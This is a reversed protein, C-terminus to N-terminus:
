PLFSRFQSCRFCAVFSAVFSPTQKNGGVVFDQTGIMDWYEDWCEYYTGNRMVLTADAKSLKFM